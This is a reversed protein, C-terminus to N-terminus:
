GDIKSRRYNEKVFIIPPLSTLSAFLLTYNLWSTGLNPIEFMGFFVAAPVNFWFTMWNGLLGEPAPFCLEASLEFTMPATSCILCVAGISLIYMVVKLSTNSMNDNCDPILTTFTTNLPPESIDCASNGNGFVIVKESVLTIILSFILSLSLLVIIAIKMKKRFCDMFTAVLISVGVSSFGLIIGLTTSWNESLGLENTFTVVLSSQWVQGIAQSMAYCLTVLWCNRNKILDVWGAFFSTREEKASNSPPTPPKSPFYVLVSLFIAASVGSYVSLLVTIDYLHDRDEVNEYKTVLAKTLLYSVGVGLANFMQGISTARTRENPPFWLASIKIPASMAIPGAVGNLWAGLHCLATFVKFEHDSSTGNNQEIYDVRMQLSNEFNRTSNFDSETGSGELSPFWLPLCRVTSGLFMAASTVVLSLRLNNSLMYASMPSFVFFSLIGWLNYQFLTGDSWGFTETATVAFPGFTSWICCQWMTFISFTFLIWWRTHYIKIDATM